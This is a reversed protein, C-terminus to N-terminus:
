ISILPKVLETRLIQISKPADIAVRFLDGSTKLFFISIVGDSTQFKISEGVKRGLVLGGINNVKSSKKIINSM